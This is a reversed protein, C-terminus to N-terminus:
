HAVHQDTAM